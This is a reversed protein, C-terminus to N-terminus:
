QQERQLQLLYSEALARGRLRRHKGDWFGSANEGHLRYDIVARDEFPIPHHRALEWLWQTDPLIQLSEDFFPLQERRGLVSWCALPLNARSKFFKPTIVTLEPPPRTNLPSVPVGKENRYAGVSGAVWPAGTRELYDIRWHLAQPYLWDDSDLFAIWPFAAQTMGFNRAAAMGRGPSLLVKAGPASTIATRDAVCLIEGPAADRASALTEELYPHHPGVPIILSVPTM